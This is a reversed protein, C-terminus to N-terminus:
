WTHFKWNSGSKPFEGKWIMKSRFKYCFFLKWLTQIYTSWNYANVLPDFKWFLVFKPKFHILRLLQYNKGIITQLTKGLGMEDSLIGHLGFRNLFMLWNVGDIQYDRLKANIRVKIQYPECNRNDFLQELFLRDHNRKEILRSSLQFETPKINKELFPNWISKLWHSSELMHAILLM